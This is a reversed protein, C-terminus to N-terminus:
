LWVSNRKSEEGVLVLRKNGLTGIKIQEFVLELLNPEPGIWFVGLRQLLVVLVLCQLKRDALLWSSFCANTCLSLSLSAKRM